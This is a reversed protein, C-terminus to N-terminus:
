GHDDFSPINSVHDLRQIMCYGGNKCCFNLVGYHKLSSCAAVRGTPVPLAAQEVTDLRPKKEPPEGNITMITDVPDIDGNIPLVRQLDRRRFYFFSNNPGKVERVAGDARIAYKDELVYARTIIGQRGDGFIVAEGRQLPPELPEAVASNEPAKSEMHVGLEHRACFQVTQVLRLLLVLLLNM